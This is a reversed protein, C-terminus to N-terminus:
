IPAGAADVLGVKRVWGAKEMVEAPIAGIAMDKPLVILPMKMLGMIDTAVEDRLERGPECYVVLMAAARADVRQMILKGSMLDRLAAIALQATANVKGAVERLAEVEARAKIQEKRKVDLKVAQRQDATSAVARPGKHDSDVGGGETGKVEEM